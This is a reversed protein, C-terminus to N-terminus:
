EGAGETVMGGSIFSSDGPNHQYQGSEHMQKKKAYMSRDAEDFLKKFTEEDTQYIGAKELVDSLKNSSRNVEIVLIIILILLIVMATELPLLIANASIGRFKSEDKEKMLIEGTM